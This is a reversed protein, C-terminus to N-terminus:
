CILAYSPFNNFPLNLILTDCAFSGLVPFPLICDALKAQPHTGILISYGDRDVVARIISVHPQARSVGTPATCVARGGEGM